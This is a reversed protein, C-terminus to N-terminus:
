ENHTKKWESYEPCGCCAAKDELTCGKAKCFDTKAENPATTNDLKKTVFSGEMKEVNAKESFPSIAEVIGTEIDVAYTAGRVSAPMVSNPIDLVMFYQNKATRGVEGPKLQWIPITNSINEHIINM